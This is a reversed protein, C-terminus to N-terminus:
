VHVLNEVFETVSKEWSYKLATKRCNERNITLCKKANKELNDGIFGDKGNTVIDKLGRVDFGAVPLSCAMAELIVLGFTETKSPFVFVDCISLLDVLEQGHKYGTFIAKKGYLKELFIKQPGDGIILKTGPLDCNLFARINKELAVRGAYVFIPKKFNHRLAIPNRKFRNSDVGLPAVVINDFGKDELERKFGATTIIIKSSKSHFWRFYAYSINKLYKLWESWVGLYEPIRTHYSTTFKWKNKVCAQRVAFGVPGETEIHIFDPKIKKLMKEVGFPFAVKFESYVPLRLSFFAGPHIIFVKYDKQELIKKTEEVATTVGSVIGHWADTVIAIKKM